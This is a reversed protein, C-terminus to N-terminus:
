SLSASALRRGTIVPTKARLWSNRSWSRRAFLLNTWKGWPEYPRQLATAPLEFTTLREKSSEFLLPRRSYNSPGTITEKTTSAGDRTTSLLSGLWNRAKPDTAAEAMEIAKENWELAAGGGVIGMMHAADVALFEHGGEQGLELSKIFCSM